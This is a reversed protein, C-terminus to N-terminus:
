RRNAQAMKAYVFRGHVGMFEWSSGHVRSSIQEKLSLENSDVKVIRAVDRTRVYLAIQQLFGPKDALVGVFPAEVDDVM